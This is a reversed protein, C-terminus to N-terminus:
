DSGLGLQWRASQRIWPAVPDFVDANNSAPLPMVDWPTLDVHSLQEVPTHKMLNNLLASVSELLHDIFIGLDLLRWPLDARAGWKVSGGTAEMSSRVRAEEARPLGVLSDVHKSRIQYTISPLAAGHVSNRLLRLITLTHNGQSEPGVVDALQPAQKRVDDLWETKQWASLHEKGLPLQLVRHAVRATVDVAGMLLVLAVDLEALATDQTDNDQPQNLAVHIRDRTELAREVRQFLTDGLIMMSEDNSAFAHQVCAARWRWGEPLLERGAMWYFRGRDMRYQRAIPFVDQARFYLGLVPLAQAPNCVTVGRTAGRTCVHLYPRETVYLDARVAQVAIQAALADARRRDAADGPPLDKYVDSETDREAIDVTTGHVSSITVSDPDWSLVIGWAQGPVHDHVVAWGEYVDVGDTTARPAVGSPPGEDAYRIVDILPDDLLETLLKVQTDPLTEHTTLLSADIMVRLKRFRKRGTFLHRKRFPDDDVPWRERPPRPNSVDLRKIM